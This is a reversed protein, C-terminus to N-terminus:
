PCAGWQATPPRTVSIAGCAAAARAGAGRSSPAPSLPYRDPGLQGLTLSKGARESILEYRPQRVFRQGPRERRGHVGRGNHGRPHRRRRPDHRARPHRERVVGPRVPVTRVSQALIGDDSVTDYGGHGVFHLVHWEGALLRAHVQAWTAEAVWTVEVLGEATPDALAEALQRKEADVDLSSMGRPSSVLGLIRLPDRVELPDPTYPAPVHRRVLPEHRCLYTETEPDFLM